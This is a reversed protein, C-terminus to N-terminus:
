AAVPTGTLRAYTDEIVDSLSTAVTGVPALSIVDAGAAYKAEGIVLDRYGQGQDGIVVARIMQGATVAALEAPVGGPTLLQASSVEAGNSWGQSSSGAAVLNQAIATATGASMPGKDAVNEIHFRVGPGSTGAGVTALVGSTSDLYRLTVATFTDEVTEGLEIAGPALLYDYQTPPYYARVAGDGWVGWRAGYYAAFETLIPGVYNIDETTDGNVLPVAGFTASRTVNWGLTIATDIITDPTTSTQGSGNIAPFDYARQSIGTATFSDGNWDTETVEGYWRRVPGLCIEVKAGHFLPSPRSGYGLSMSWSAEFNGGDARDTWALDGYPLGTAGLWVGDVRLQVDITM